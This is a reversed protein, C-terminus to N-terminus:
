KNSFVDMGRENGEPSVKRMVVKSLSIFAIESHRKPLRFYQFLRATTLIQFYIFYSFRRNVSNIPNQFTRTGLCVKDIKAFLLMPEQQFSIQINNLDPRIITSYDKEITSAKLIKIRGYFLISSIILLSLFSLIYFPIWIKKHIKLLRNIICLRDHLFLIKEFSEYKM